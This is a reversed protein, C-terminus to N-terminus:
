WIGPLLRYKTGKAYEEYGPLEAILTDDEKSTRLIM